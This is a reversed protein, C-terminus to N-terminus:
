ASTRRVRCGCLVSVREGKAPLVIAAKKEIVTRIQHSHRPVADAPRGIKLAGSSCIKRGVRQGPVWKTVKTRVPFSPFPLTLTHRALSSPEFGVWSVLLPILYERRETRGVSFPDIVVVTVDRLDTMRAGTSPPGLSVTGPVFIGSISTRWQRM